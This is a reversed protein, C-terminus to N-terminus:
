FFRAVSSLVGEQHIVFRNLIALSIVNGFPLM